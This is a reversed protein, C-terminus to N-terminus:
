DRIEQALHETWQSGAVIEAQTEAYIGKLLKKGEADSYTVDRLDLSVARGNRRKAAENWAQNLEAIWPGAIRGELRLGLTDDTEHITIRLTM